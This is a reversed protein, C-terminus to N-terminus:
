KMCVSVFISACGLLIDILGFGLMFKLCCYERKPDIKSYRYAMFYAIVMATISLTLGILICIM